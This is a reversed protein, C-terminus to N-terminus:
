IEVGKVAILIFASLSIILGYSLSGLFVGINYNMGLSIFTAQADFGYNAGFFSLFLALVFILLPIWNFRLLKKLSVAKTDADGKLGYVGYLTYAPLGITLLAYLIFLIGTIKLIIGSSFVDGGVSGISTFVGYGDLRSYIKEIKKKAVYGHIVEEGTTEQLPNNVGSGAEGAAETAAMASTDTMTNEMGLSDTVAAMMTSDVMTEEVPAETKTEEVLENYASFWPIFLSGIIVICAITLVIRDFLSVREELLTCEERLLDGKNRKARIAEVHKTKEADSKFLDKPKGPFVDFGIYHFREEDTIRKKPEGKKGEAAM